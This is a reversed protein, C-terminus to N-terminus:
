EAMIFYALYSYHLVKTKKKPLDMNTPILLKKFFIHYTLNPKILFNLKKIYM